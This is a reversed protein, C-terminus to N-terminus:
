KPVEQTKTKCEAELTVIWSHETEVVRSVHAPPCVARRLTSCGCLAICLLALTLRKM